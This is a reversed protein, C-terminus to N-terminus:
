RARETSYGVENEYAAKLATLSICELDFQGNEVNNLLTVGRWWLRNADGAWPSYYDQFVGCVLGYIKGGELNSREAFDLIHTHGQVASQFGKTVLSYAPHMGGISYGMVGSVFYHAFAVGEIIRTGPTNGSYPIVENYYEKLLLDDYSVTGELEPSMDLVRDIRQEHNGIFFYRDPMKKKLRKVPSWVRDQFDLHSQVDALYSRGHYSRKGKDYSALSPFDGADGINVVIDPKRDVILRALYDARDNSYEPHAHQDPVVLINKSM